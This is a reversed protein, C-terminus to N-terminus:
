ETRRGDVTFYPALYLVAAMMVYGTTWDTWEPIPLALRGIVDGATFVYSHTFGIASLLAGALCWHAAVAFRREIVFYTIGALIMCTYIFGQGLAFMGDAYFSRIAVFGDIFGPNYLNTGTTAGAVSMTHKVALSVYGAIAPTLGLVVAPIHRKEAVQFNQACVVVGIWILIPMLAEIPILFTVISLSGTVCVLTWLVANITSYGARAGIRKYGPHGLFISTPFPSGFCAAGLSGLGNMLLLPRPEYSDGAAAAAEINQLSAILFIFGFPIVVPLFEVIFEVSSFVRTVEPIPLYLGFNELTFETSPVVSPMGLWYLIWAILTGASLIIFGGPIGGRAKVGGFYFVMLLALSTFGILPYAYTRFVYDMSIFALGTGAIAVLMVARPTVKRIYHVVFSGFFEVSGCVMCALLGTHWALLDAAEKAMGADLAKQQTPYMVLFVFIIVTITSTGYPIACVDDRNEAKALKLAQWAYFGNGIILGVSAAPLIRGYYLAESFGLFDLCLKSMLIFTLMADLGFAFFGEWDGKVFAKM